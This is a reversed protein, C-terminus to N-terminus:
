SMSNRRSNMERSLMNQAWRVYKQQLVNRASVMRMGYIAELAPHASWETAEWQELLAIGANLSLITTLTTGSINTRM